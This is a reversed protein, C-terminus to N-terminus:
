GARTLAEVSGTRQGGIHRHTGKGGSDGGALRDDRCLLAPAGILRQQRHYPASPHGSHRRCRWVSNRCVWRAAVRPLWCVCVCGCVCTKTGAAQVQRVVNLLSDLEEKAHALEAEKVSLAEATAAERDAAAHAETTLEDVRHRLAAITEDSSVTSQHLSSQLDEIMAAGDDARTTELALVTQTAKLERSLAALETQLGNM